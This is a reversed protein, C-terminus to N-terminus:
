RAQRGAQRPMANCQLGPKGFGIFLRGGGKERKFLLSVDFSFFLFASWISADKDFTFYFYVRDERPGLSPGVEKGSARRSLRLTWSKSHHVFLMGYMRALVNGDGRTGLM